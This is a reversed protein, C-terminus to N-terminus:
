AESCIPMWKIFAYRHGVILDLFAYRRKRRQLDGSLIKQKNKKFLSQEVTEKLNKESM